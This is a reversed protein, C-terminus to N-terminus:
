EAPYEEAKDEQSTEQKIAQAIQNGIQQIAANLKVVELQAEQLEGQFRQYIAAAQQVAPSLSEIAHQTGDVTIHSM